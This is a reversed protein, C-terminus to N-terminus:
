TPPSGSGKPIHMEMRECYLEAVMRPTANGPVSPGFDTLKFIGLNFFDIEGLADKLNGELFTLKGNREKDQGNNGNVVFDNFFDAWTQGSVSAFQIRLDPFELKGPERDLHGGEGFLIAQRITFSDIKNM